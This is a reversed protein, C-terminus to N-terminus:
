TKTNSDGTFKASKSLSFILKACKDAVYSIHQNFKFKDDIIVGLYKMTKVQEIPTINLFIKIEKAEKALRKRSDNITLLCIPPANPL